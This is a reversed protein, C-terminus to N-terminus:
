IRRDKQLLENEKGRKIVKQVEIKFDLTRNNFNTVVVSQRTHCEFFEKCTDCYYKIRDGKLKSQYIAKWSNMNQPNNCTTCDPM